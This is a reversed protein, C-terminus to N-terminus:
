RLQSSSGAAAPGCRSRQASARITPRSAGCEYKVPCHLGVAWTNSPSLAAVGFLQDQYGQTTSLSATSGLQRPHREPLPLPPWAAQWSAHGAWAHGSLLFGSM